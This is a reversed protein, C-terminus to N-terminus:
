SIPMAITDKKVFQAPEHLHLKNTGVFSVLPELTSFLSSFHAEAQLMQFDQAHAEKYNLVSDFAPKNTIVVDDGIIFFDIDRSINFGPNQNLGLQDDAFFVSLYNRAKRTQWSDDTKRVAHLIQDGNVLKVVYFKTNQVEALKTV